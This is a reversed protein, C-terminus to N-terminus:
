RLCGEEETITPTVDITPPPQTPGANEIVGGLNVLVQPAKAQHAENFHGSLDGLMQAAKLKDHLKFRVIGDKDVFFEKIAARMHRPIDHPNTHPVGDTSFADAIDAYSVAALEQQLREVTLSMSQKHLLAYYDIREQIAASNLLRTALRYLTAQTATKLEEPTVLSTFKLAEVPNAGSAVLQAFDDERQTTAYQFGTPSSPNPPAPAYNQTAPAYQLTPIPTPPAPPTQNNDDDM